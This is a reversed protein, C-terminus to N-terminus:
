GVRARLLVAAIREVEEYGPQELEEGFVDPDLEEYTADVGALLPEVAALFTDRGRVIASGTYLVLMGRSRLRALADRVIRAGLAEGHAGGGDRYARRGADRMYPPNAIVLDVGGQVGSLVDSRVVTPALGALAANVSAFLLARENVDALVLSRARDGLAIGAAGTGCGVDVVREAPPAHRLVAAVFRHTDPGFFVADHEDTPFASHIFLRGALTSVRITSRALEGDARICGARALLERLAPPLVEAAFPLNWGFVDRLDAAVSPARRLVRAHTAPTVTVFDYGRRELERGLEVLAFFRGLRLRPRDIEAVAPAITM